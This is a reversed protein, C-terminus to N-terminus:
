KTLLNQHMMSHLWLSTTTLGTINPDEGNSKKGIISTPDSTHGAFLNLKSLCFFFWHTSIKFEAGLDQCVYKIAKLASETYHKDQIILVLIQLIVKKISEQNGSEDRLLGKPTGTTDLVNELTENTYSRVGTPGGTEAIPMGTSDSTGLYAVIAKDM